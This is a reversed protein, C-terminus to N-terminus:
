KEAHDFLTWLASNKICSTPFINQGCHQVLLSKGFHYTPMFRNISRKRRDAFFNLSVSLDM